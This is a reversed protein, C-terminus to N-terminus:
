VVVRGIAARIVANGRIATPLLKPDAFAADVATGTYALWGKVIRALAAIPAGTALNAVMLPFVREALKQAGDQAIQVLRHDIHPNTFRRRVSQWYDDVSLPQLAPKIEGRVLHELFQALSEDAVADRVFEHGRALGLYALASHCTNLVHLKLRGFDGPDDVLQAGVREWAPRPGAFRDEIVWQSYPERQVCADDCCELAEAVRLRTAESTAPVICDVVTRPFRVSEDLWARLGPATREMYSSVAANLRAGNDKLNDCSVLTLPRGGAAHRQQLALGLWGIVSVPEHPAALDHVIDAHATDLAGAPNLCYGRETVTLTVVHTSDAALTSLLCTRATAATLAKRISAVVRFTPTDALTEVAYLGDQAALAEPVATSRLAVALVGWDGGAARIADETYLAQHARHFAGVGLHVMGIPLNDFDYDPREVRPPLDALASRQLRRM